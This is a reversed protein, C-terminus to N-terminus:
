SNAARNLLGHVVRARPLPYRRELRLFDSWALPGARRRRSLWRRWIRRSGELFNQLSAFNGIIGYYGYHGQLKQKLEQHQVEIPEHRNTRCWVSLVQLARRLRGKATQPKIVWGGGRTRGWYHTFGLFDFTGPDTRGRDGPESDDSEPPVFRVLRTKEPHVTLGYKSMRRPLVEMIRRADDERAVGIVFDDAYRILFAEGKLRPRVEKEFWEDLVYHLVINALLPSIVGGQPTGAEPTTVAGDELVGANLWKGILRLIVGDRVRRRLFERLHGHDISDFFRRLDVDVIWCCGLNMARKWLSDLAGHAGRGPRFGHSVELFDAEYVPELVMLVARQLLKDEFTPIGLPRTEGPSGAKPIHVRRVPPAVYTGSKARDLLAQLNGMLNAEYDAATQGDVGVAGDKRTQLYAMLLWDIDIHHALNTFAMDPADRALEAIRQRKTSM